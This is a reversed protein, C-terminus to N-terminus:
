AKFVHAKPPYDLDMSFCIAMFKYAHWLQRNDESPASNFNTITRIITRHYPCFPTLKLSKVKSIFTIGLYLLHCHVVVLLNLYTYNLAKFNCCAIWKAINELCWWYIPHQSLYPSLCSLGQGLLSPCIVRIFWSTVRAVRVVQRGRRLCTNSCTCTFSTRWGGTSFLNRLCLGNAEEWGEQFLRGGGYGQIRWRHIWGVM